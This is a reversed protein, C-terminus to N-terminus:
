AKEGPEQWIRRLLKCLYMMAYPLGEGLSQRTRRFCMM